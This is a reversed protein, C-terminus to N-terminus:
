KYENDYLHKGNVSAYIYSISTLTSVQDFEKVSWRFEIHQLKSEKNNNVKAASM